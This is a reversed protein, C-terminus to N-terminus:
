FRAKNQCDRTFLFWILLMIRIKKIPKEYLEINDTKNFYKKKNKCM